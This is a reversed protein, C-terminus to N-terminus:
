TIWLVWNVEEAGISSFSFCFCFMVCFQYMHAPTRKGITKHLINFTTGWNLVMMVMKNKYITHGGDLCFNFNNVSSTNLIAEDVIENPYVVCIQNLFIALCIPGNLENFECKKATWSLLMFHDSTQATAQKIKTKM